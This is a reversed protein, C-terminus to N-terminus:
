VVGNIGAKATTISITSDDDNPVVELGPKGSNSRCGPLILISLFATLIPIFRKRM